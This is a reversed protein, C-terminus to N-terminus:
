HSYDYESLVLRGDLVATSIKDIRDCIYIRVRLLANASTDIGCLVKEVEETLVLEKFQLLSIEVTKTYKSRKFLLFRRMLYFKRELITHFSLFALSNLESSNAFLKPLEVLEINNLYDLFDKLCENFRGIRGTVNSHIINGIFFLCSLICALFSILIEANEM